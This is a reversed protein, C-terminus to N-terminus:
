YYMLIRSLSLFVICIRRSMWNKINSVVSRIFCEMEDVVDSHSRFKTWKVITSSCAVEVKETHVEVAHAKLFKSRYCFLIGEQFTLLHLNRAHRVTYKGRRANDIVIKIRELVRREPVVTKREEKSKKISKRKRSRRWFCYIRWM